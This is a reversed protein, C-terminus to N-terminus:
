DEAGASARRMGALAEAQHQSGLLEWGVVTVMPAVTVILLCVPVSVGVAAAVAALPVQDGDHPLAQGGVPNRRQQQEDLPELPLVQEREEPPEFRILDLQVHADAAELMLRYYLEIGQSRFSMALRVSPPARWGVIAEAHGSFQMTGPKFFLECEGDLLSQLTAMRDLRILALLDAVDHNRFETTLESISEALLAEFSGTLDSVEPQM